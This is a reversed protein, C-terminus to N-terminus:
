LKRRASILLKYQADGLSYHAFIECGTQTQKYKLAHTFLTTQLEGASFLTHEGERLVARYANTGTRTITARNESYQVCFGYDPEKFAIRPPFLDLEGEVNTVFSQGDAFTVCRIHATNM